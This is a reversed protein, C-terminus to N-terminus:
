ASGERPEQISIGELDPYVFYIFLHASVKAIGNDGWEPGWTNQIWYYDQCNETGYGFIVVAHGGATKADDEDKAGQYVGERHPGLSEYATLVGVIPQERIIPQIDFDPSDTGPQRRRKVTYDQFRIRPSDPPTPTSTRQGCYPHNAEVAVGRQKIYKFYIEPPSGRFGGEGPVARYCDHPFAEQTKDILEQVSPRRAPNHPGGFKMQVTASLCQGTAVASCSGIGGQNIPQPIIERPHAFDKNEMEVTEM